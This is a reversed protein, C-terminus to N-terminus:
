VKEYIQVPPDVKRKTIDGLIREPVLMLFCICGGDPIPLKHWIGKRILVADGKEIRFYRIGMSDWDDPHCVPIVGTGDIAVFIEACGPHCELEDVTPEHSDISLYGMALREGEFHSMNAMHWYRHYPGGDDHPAPPCGVYIGYKDFRGGEPTEIM